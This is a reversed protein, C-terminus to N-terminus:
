LTHLVTRAANVKYASSPPYTTIYTMHTNHEEAPVSIVNAYTIGSSSVIPILAIQRRSHMGLRYKTFKKMQHPHIPGTYQRSIAYAHAYLPHVKFVM